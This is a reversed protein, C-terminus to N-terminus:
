EPFRWRDQTGVAQCRLGSAPGDYLVRGGPLETLRWSAGVVPTCRAPVNAVTGIQGMDGWEPLDPLFMSGDFLGLRQAECRVWGDSTVVPEISGTNRCTIPRWWLDRLRYPPTAYLESRLRFEYRILPEMSAPAHDPPM